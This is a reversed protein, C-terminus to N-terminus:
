AGVAGTNEVTDRAKYLMVVTMDCLPEPPSPFAM